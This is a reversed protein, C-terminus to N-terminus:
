LTSLLTSLHRLLTITLLQHVPAAKSVTSTDSTTDESAAGTRNRIASFIPFYSCDIARAWGELLLTVCVKESLWTVIYEVFSEAGLGLWRENVIPKPQGADMSGM